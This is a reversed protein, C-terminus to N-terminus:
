VSGQCRDTVSPRNERRQRYGDRGGWADRRSDESQLKEFIRQVALDLLSKNVSSDDLLGALEFAEKRNPTLVSAGSIDLNLAPHLNQDVALLRDHQTCLKVIEGFVSQNLVGKAYDSVIVGDSQLISDSLDKRFQPNSEYAYNTSSLERDVRCVQQHRAIIRSKIITTTDERAYIKSTNIGQNELISHLKAAFPDTGAVGIVDM